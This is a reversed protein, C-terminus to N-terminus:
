EQWSKGGAIFILYSSHLPDLLLNHTSASSIFFPFFPLPTMLLSIDILHHRQVLSVTFINFVCTIYVCM